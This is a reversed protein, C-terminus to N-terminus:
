LQTSDWVRFRLADKEWGELLQSLTSAPVLQHVRGQGNRWQSQTDTAVREFRLLEALGSEVTSPPAALALHKLQTQLSPEAPTKLAEVTVLALGSQVRLM